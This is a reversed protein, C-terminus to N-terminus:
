SSSAGHTRHGPRVASRGYVRARRAGLLRQLRHVTVPDHVLADPHEVLRTLRQYYEIERLGLEDRILEGKRGGAWAAANETRREVDLIARDLDTLEAVRRRYAAPTVTGASGIGVVGCANVRTLVARM